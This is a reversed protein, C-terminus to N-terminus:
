DASEERNGRQVATHLLSQHAVCLYLHSEYPLAARCKRYEQEWFNKGVLGSHKLHSLSGQCGQHVAKVTQRGRGVCGVVVKLQHSPFPRMNVGESLFPLKIWLFRPHEDFGHNLLDQLLLFAKWPSGQAQLQHHLQKLFVHLTPEIRLQLGVAEGDGVPTRKDGVNEKGLSTNSPPPPQFM